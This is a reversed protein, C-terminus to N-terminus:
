WLMGIRGRTGGSGDGGGGSSGGGPAAARVLDIYCRALVGGEAGVVAAKVAVPVRRGRATVWRVSDDFGARVGTRGDANVSGGRLGTVGPHRGRQRSFGM